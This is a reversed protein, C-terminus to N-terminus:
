RELVARVPDSVRIDGTLEPRPAGAALLAEVTGAYDGTQAHWGHISGHMAWGLPTGAFQDDKVNLPAGREILVRAMEANGHFGAWHLATQKHERRTDVPWGAEIMLRVARADNREAADVLKRREDPTLKAAIGPKASRIQGALEADGLQCAVALKLDDPSRAMLLEFVDEHGFERAIAHASKYGGLTWIYITGGARPDRKPFWRDSVSTHIRGPDEDLLRAVRAMDGLASAMLVDADSGRLVLYRAVEQRDRIMWQAATSEHDIDRANLDAGRVLLFEAMEVTQAFHLPLQGDGGRAHVVRADAAIMRRVEDLMGLRVAHHIELRAGRGILFSPLWPARWADDVVHFGGAWWHSKQNIDAGARLLVDVLDRNARQVAAHLATQGFGYEPLPDNIRAKVDPHQELARALAPADDANIADLVAKFPEM